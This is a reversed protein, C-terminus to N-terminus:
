KVRAKQLFTNDGERVTMYVTGGPGFGVILSNVPIQVREVLEGKRSIVDYVPGGPISKTPITRIWINGETDARAAGAFFPPKYDPLESPPVFSMQQQRGPAGSAGARAPGGGPGGPGMQINIQPAGGGGGGGGGGIAIQPGAGGGVALTPAANGLRERAAKVSDILAIKDEDTLRQWDFPIKAATSKTGDANVFDIHYDKGRVLAVGGDPLLVMDDVIPLPNIQSTISMGGDATHTVDMKLKQVKIWTLTDRVRTALDIRLVPVSDPFEPPTMPMGPRFGGRMAPMPAGRYVIRGHGDYGAGPLGMAMADQSSPLSMVRGIKGSPDVVLMSLSQPDLLLSSDGRYGILSAQFRAPYANATEATTDAVVVYKALDADFLIVRRKSIDNVLVGSGSARVSVNGIPETSKAVVPGIQRIVGRDQAGAVSTLTALGLVIKLYPNSRM